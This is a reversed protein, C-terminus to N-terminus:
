DNAKRVIAEGDVIEVDVRKFKLSGKTTKNDPTEKTSWPADSDVHNVYQTNGKMKLVWMPISSDSLHGTNFHFIVEKYFM